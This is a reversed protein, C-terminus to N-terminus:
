DSSPPWPSGTVFAVMLESTSNHKSVVRRVAELHRYAQLRDHDPDDDVVGPPAERVFRVEYEIAMTLIRAADPDDISLSHQYVRIAEESDNEM